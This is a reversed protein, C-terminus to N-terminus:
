TIPSCLSASLATMLHYPCLSASLATMLHYPCLSASLATMLHYPFVTISVSSDDPPSPVTISVSSNDPSLPVTISVSSDDPPLPVTISVSRDDPPSPVTISVSRDDPPSPVTISVSSDDPPSPVTISVSSDDPPSPVTISVLMYTVSTFNTSDCKDVVFSATSGMTLNPALGIWRVNLTGKGLAKYKLITENVEYRRGEVVFSATLYLQDTTSNLKTLNWVVEKQGQTLIVRRTVTNTHNTHDTLTMVVESSLDQSPLPQYRADTVGLVAVFPMGTRYVHDTRRPDFHVHVPKDQVRVTIKTSCTRGMDDKVEVLLTLHDKATALERNLDVEVDKLGSLDMMCRGAPLVLSRVSDQGCNEKQLATQSVHKLDESVHAAKKLSNLPKLAESGREGTPKFNFADSPRGASAPLKSVSSPPRSSKLVNSARGSAPCPKFIDSHRGSFSATQLLPDGIDIKEVIKEQIKGQKMKDPEYKVLLEEKQAILKLRDARHRATQAELQANKRTLDMNCQSVDLYQQTKAQLDGQAKATKERELQLTAMFFQDGGDAAAGSVSVDKSAELQKLNDILTRIEAHAEILQARLRQATGDERQNTMELALTIQM